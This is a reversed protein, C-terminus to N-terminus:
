TESTPLTKGTPRSRTDEDPRIQLPRRGGLCQSSLRSPYAPPYLQHTRRGAARIDPSGARHMSFDPHNSRVSVRVALGYRIASRRWGFAHICNIAFGGVCLTASIRRTPFIAAPRIGQADDGLFLGGTVPYWANGVMYSYSVFGSFRRWDPLEIKAEAGYIVSKRFAIPFSIATNQIQDDDAYNNVDRRYYNADVRM